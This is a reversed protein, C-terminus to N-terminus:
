IQFFIFFFFGGGLVGVIPFPSNWNIYHPIGNRKFPYIRTTENNLNQSKKPSYGIVSAVNQLFNFM